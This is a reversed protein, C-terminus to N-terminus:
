GWSVETIIDNEDVDINLRAMDYRCDHMQGPKRVRLRKWPISNLLEETLETGVLKEFPNDM